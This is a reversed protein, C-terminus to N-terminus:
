RLAAGRHESAKRMGYGWRALPAFVQGEYRLPLHEIRWFLEAIIAWRWPYRYRTRYVLM